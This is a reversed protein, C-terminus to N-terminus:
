ESKKKKREVLRVEFDPNLKKDFASDLISVIAKHRTINQKEAYITIKDFLDPSFRVSVLPAEPEELIVRKTKM